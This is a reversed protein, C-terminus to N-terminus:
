GTQLCALSKIPNPKKECILSINKLFLQFQYDIHLPFFQVPFLASLHDEM